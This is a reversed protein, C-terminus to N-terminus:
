QFVKVCDAADLTAFYERLNRMELELRSGSNLDRCLQVMKALIDASEKSIKAACLFIDNVKM